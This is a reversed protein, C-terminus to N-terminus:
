FLYFHKQKITEIRKNAEDAAPVGAEVVRAYINVAERWAESEEEIAGAGFAARTFWLINEPTTEFEDNLYSYILATYNSLAETKRGLKEQSRGIKYQAQLRLEASASARRLLMQYAALAEQYREPEEAGLTFHCDGKRGWALDALYNEPYNKIVEDFALIARTFDGLESLVEGQAFRAEALRGSEPYNKALAGYYELAKTFQEQASASRGAWYLAHPAMSHDPFNDPISAFSTEAQKYDTHNYHYEGAWFTVEAAWKSEPYTEIFQRCIKLAQDADGLHLLCFGRMYFAQEADKSEPYYQLVRDFGAYAEKFQALRYYIMASRNMALAKLEENSTTEKLETFTALAQTWDAQYNYIRGIEVAAKDAYPNGPYREKLQQFHLLAVDERALRSLCRGALYSAQPALNHGPDALAAANYATLAEEFKNETFHADGAKLRAEIRANTSRAARAAKEFAQAAEAYRAQYWLSWAKGSTAAAKGDPNQAVALYAQYSKEADTYKKQDLQIHAKELVAEAATQEDPAQAICEDLLSLSAETKGAQQYLLAISICTRTQITPDTSIERARKLETIATETRGLKEALAAQLSFAQFATSGTAEDNALPALLERIRTENEAANATILAGALLLTAEIAEPSESQTEILENWLAQAEAPRDTKQYLAALDLLNRNADPHDPFQNRFATFTTEANKWQKQTMYCFSRLRFSSAALEGASLPVSYPNLTRLAIEYQGEEFWARADWYALAAFPADDQHGKLTDAALQHLEEFRELGFLAQALLQASEARHADDAANVLLRRAQNRAVKYLEDDIAAQVKLYEGGLGAASGTLTGALLLSFIFRKM